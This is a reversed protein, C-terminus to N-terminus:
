IGLEEYLAEASEFRALQDPEQAEEIAKVTTQNPTEANFPLRRELCVQQYFLAIAQSATLQLEKFVEEAKRRTEHDLYATVTDTCTAM